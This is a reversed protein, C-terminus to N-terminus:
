PDAPPPSIRIETAFGDLEVGNRKEKKLELEVQISSFQELSDFEVPKGDMTIRASSADLLYKNKGPVSSVLILRESTSISLLRFIGAELAHARDRLGPSGQLLLMALFVGVWPRMRKHM